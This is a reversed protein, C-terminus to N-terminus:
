ILQRRGIQPKWRMVEGRQQSKIVTETFSNLSVYRAFFQELVAGLIFIGFGEFASEDFLVSIELGRGFTIPGPTQVRQVVPRSETSRIGEVQKRMIADTSDVYLKLLQRLALAGENGPGDLLSLYNLSLHSVIRWGLEGDAFVPRPATPTVLCNVSATPAAIEMSFDSGTSSRSMQIPLHRNTCLAAVGLQQLETRYPAADSDVLSIYVESGIYSSKQGFKKEKESLVRPDRHVTFFASTRTDTDKALYFPRFEQEEDSRVGYGSVSQIQFIEFDLPRTRDAVVHFESFRDSMLIRDARKEFLNIVPTCYLEFFSADIRREELRVEQESLVIILDVQDGECCQLAEGLGSLEFFLFRQPFAFYERLMRHGQFGRPSNPLLAEEERFGVRRVTTAAPLITQSKKRETTVAQVVVAVGRSFVQEYISAPVEDAGRLFFSLRDLKIAKIPIGGASQLRFRFAARGGLARPLDLQSVDRTYYRAENLILPWLQVDHATRYECATQEGPRLKSRLVTGRPISYGEPQTAQHDPEFRVIAMSPIPCLYEPYVTELLSQTLRPFEADLKVQVRATLFAFGELLREVYPDPCTEKGEKDLSLRGAQVPNARAFESATQRLHHLERNYHDLLRRDM